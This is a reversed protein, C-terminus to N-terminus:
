PSPRAPRTPPPCLPAAELPNSRAPVALLPWSKDKASVRTAPLPWPIAAAPDDFRVGQEYEPAHYGGAMYFIQAGSTLAQTGHAFMSPVYLALRNSESLEVGFHGLHTPSRPRMDVIVDWVSGRICRVLKPEGAPGTQYHLGRITGAEQDCVLNAQVFRACLGRRAFERSCWVRAFAGRADGHEDSQILFAGALPTATFTM